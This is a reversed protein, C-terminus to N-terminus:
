GCDYLRTGSVGGGYSSPPVAGCSGIVWQSAQAAATTAGKVAAGGMWGGPFMSTGDSLLVYRLAGSGVEGKLEGLTPSPAQGTFGGIPLVPADTALIYPPPSRGVRPPSSTAPAAATLGLM